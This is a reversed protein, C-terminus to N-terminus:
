AERAVDFREVHEDGRECGVDRPPPDSNTKVSTSSTAWSGAIAPAIPRKRLGLGDQVRWTPSLASSPLRRGLPRAFSASWGELSCRAGKMVCAVLRNLVGCLHRKKPRCCLSSFESFRLSEAASRSTALLSTDRDHRCCGIFGEHGHAALRSVLERAVSHADPESSALADEGCVRHRAPLRNCVLGDCAVDDELAVKARWCSGNSGSGWPAEAVAHDLQVHRDPQSCRRAAKMSWATEFKASAFWWGFEALEAAGDLSPASGALAIRREWLFGLRSVSGDPLEGKTHFFCFGHAQGNPRPDFM